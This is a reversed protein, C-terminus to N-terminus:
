IDIFARMRRAVRLGDTRIGVAIERAFTFAVVNAISDKAFGDILFTVYRAPLTNKVRFFRSLSVGNNKGLPFM